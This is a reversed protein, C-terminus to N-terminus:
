QRLAILEDLIITKFQARVSVGGVLWRVDHRGGVRQVMQAISHLQFPVGLQVGLHHRRLVKTACGDNASNTSDVVERAIASRLKLGSVWTTCTGLGVGDLLDVREAFTVCSGLIDVAFEFSVDSSRSAPRLTTRM